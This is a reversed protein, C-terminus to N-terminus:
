ASGATQALGLFRQLPEAGTVEVPEGRVLDEPRLVLHRTLALRGERVTRLVDGERYGVKRSVALSAPNDVFAASTVEVAGLHDVLLTCVARRMRTGIGRGQHRRALWSGTLATRTVAYAGGAFGQTGVLEGDVRVALDVSVHDPGFAAREAWHHAAFRRPQEDHPVRTWPFTFPMFDEPHIGSRVLEVLGPLDDDSIASLTLDGSRVVLGFPPWLDSPVIM